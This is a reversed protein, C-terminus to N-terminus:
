KLRLCAAAENEPNRSNDRSAVSYCKVCSIDRSQLALEVQSIRASAPLPADHCKRLKMAYISQYFGRALVRKLTIQLDRAIQAPSQTDALKCTKQSCTKPLHILSTKIQAPSHNKKAM